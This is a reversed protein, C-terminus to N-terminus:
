KVGFIEANDIGLTKKVQSSWLRLERTDIGRLVVMSYEKQLKLIEAELKKYMSELTTMNPNLAKLQAEFERRKIEVLDFFTNFFCEVERDLELLYFLQDPDMVTSTIIHTSDAYHNVDMFVKIGLNYYDDVTTLSVIQDVIVTKEAHSYIKLMKAHVFPYKTKKIYDTRLFHQREESWHIFLRIFPRTQKAPDFPFKLDTNKYSNRSHYFQENVERRKQVIPEDHHKWFFDNYPIASINFYDDAKNFQFYPLTFASEFDYVQLSGISHTQYTFENATGSMSQYDVIYEFDVSKFYNTGEKEQFTKTIKMEVDLIKDTLSIPEFPHNESTKAYLTIQQIQKKRPNVWVQGSYYLGEYQHPKFNIVLIDDKGKNRIITDVQLEYIEKLQNKSFELPSFPFYENRKFLKSFIFVHCADLSAFTRDHHTQLAFRGNKIHLDKLDYGKIEANYFGEVLEVQQDDVYSKLEYYTKAQIISDFDNQRCSALLQYLYDGRKGKITATNLWLYDRELYVTYHKIGAEVKLQLTKYGLLDVSISDKDNQIAIRFQGSNKSLLEQRTTANYIRVWSLPTKTEKDLIVGEIYSNRDQAKAAYFSFALCLLLVAKLHITKMM